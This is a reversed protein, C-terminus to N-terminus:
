LSVTINYYAGAFIYMYITSVMSNEIELVVNCKDHCKPLESIMLLISYQLFKHSYQYEIHESNIADQM